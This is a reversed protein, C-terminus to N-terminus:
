FRRTPQQEEEEEVVVEAAEDIEIPGEAPPAEQNKPLPSQDEVETADDLLGASATARPPPETKWAATEELGEPRPVAMSPLFGTMPVYMWSGCAPCKGRMGAYRTKVSHIRACVPNPCHVEIPM